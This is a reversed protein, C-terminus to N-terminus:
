HWNGQILFFDYVAHLAICAVLTGTSRRLAYIATGIVATSVVQRLTESTGAGILINPLHFLGFLASSFLVAARESEFVDRGGVLLIGRFTVEETTGVLVM